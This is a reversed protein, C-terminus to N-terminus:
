GDILEDKYVFEGLSFCSHKVKIKVYYVEKDKNNNIVDNILPSNEQEQRLLFCNCAMNSYICDYWRMGNLIVNDIDEVLVMPNTDGYKTYFYSSPNKIKYYNNKKIEM